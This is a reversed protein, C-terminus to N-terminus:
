HRHFFDPLRPDGPHEWGPEVSALTRRKSELWAEFARGRLDSLLDAEIETHVAEFPKVHAPIVATVVGVHWGFETQIPGLVSGAPSAFVARRIAVMQGRKVEGLRGGRHRTGADISLAAAM